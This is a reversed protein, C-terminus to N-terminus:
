MGGLIDAGVITVGHIIGVGISGGRIIGVDITVATAMIDQRMTVDIDMIPVIIRATIIAMAM